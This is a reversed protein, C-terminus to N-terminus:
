QNGIISLCGQVGISAYSLTNILKRQFSNLKIDTLGKFFNEFRLWDDGKKLSSYTLRLLILVRKTDVEDM